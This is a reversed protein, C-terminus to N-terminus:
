EPLGAAPNNILLSESAKRSTSRADTLLVAIDDYIGCVGGGSIDSPQYHIYLSAYGCGGSIM